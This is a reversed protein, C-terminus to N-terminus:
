CWCCWNLCNPIDPDCESCCLCASAPRDWRTAGAATALLMLALLLLRRLPRPALRIMM